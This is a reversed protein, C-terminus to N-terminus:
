LFPGTLPYRLPFMSVVRRQKKRICLGKEQRYGSTLPDIVTEGNTM